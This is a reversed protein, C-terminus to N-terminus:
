RPRYGAAYGASYGAGSFGGGGSGGASPSAGLQERSSIELVVPSRLMACLGYLPYMRPADLGSICCEAQAYAGALGGETIAEDIWRLSEGIRLPDYSALGRLRRPNRAVANM